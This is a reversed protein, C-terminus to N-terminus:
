GGGACAADRRPRRQPREVCVARLRKAHHREGDLQRAARNRREAPLHRRNDLHLVLDARRTPSARCHSCISRRRAAARAMACTSPKSTRRWAACAPSTSPWGPSTFQLLDNGIGGDAGALHGVDAVVLTDDGAGGHLSAIGSGGVLLDNGGAGDLTGNGANGTLTNDLANGTGDVNASGTLTLNEVNAALTHTVSSQVTDTGEGSNEVIVDGANDVVYTDNGAGGTLTNVASNGVLVNDLANGTGNIASAGTLTLNEVNASLTHTVSSQVTDTGEGSNETVVDGANDIVYHRQRRRRDPQRRRQQWDLTNAASNGTLTNALANGTGNIASTGTLV